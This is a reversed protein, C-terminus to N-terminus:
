QAFNVLKELHRAMARDCETREEYTSARLRRARAVARRVGDRGWREAAAAGEGVAGGFRAIEGADTDKKADTRFASSWRWRASTSIVVTLPVTAL